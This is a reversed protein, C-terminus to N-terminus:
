LTGGLRGVEDPGLPVIEETWVGDTGDSARGDLGDVDRLGDALLRIGDPVFPLVPRCLEESLAARPGGFDPLKPLIGTPGGFAPLKPLNGCPEACFLWDGAFDAGRPGCPRVCPMEPLTPRNGIPPDFCFEGCGAPPLRPRKGMPPAPPALLVPGPLPVLMAFAPLLFEFTNENGPLSDVRTVVAGDAAGM